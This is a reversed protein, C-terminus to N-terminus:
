YELGIEDLYIMAGPPNGVENGLEFAISLTSVTPPRTAATRM